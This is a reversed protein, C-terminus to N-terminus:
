YHYATFNSDRFCVQKGYLVNAQSDWIPLQNSLFDDYLSSQICLIQFNICIRYYWSYKMSRPTPAGFIIYGLTPRLFLTERQGKGARRDWPRWEGRLSATSVLIGRGRPLGYSDSSRKGLGTMCGLFMVRVKEQRETDSSVMFFSESRSQKVTPGLVGIGSPTRGWVPFFSTSYLSALFFGFLCVKSLKGIWDIGM